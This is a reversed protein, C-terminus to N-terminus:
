DNFREIEIRASLRIRHRGLFRVAQKLQERHDAIQGVVRELIDELTVLGALSGYEDIVMAAHMEKSQLERLLDVVRKTEPVFDVPRLQSIWGQEPAAKAALLDRIHLMGVIQEESERWVPIRSYEKAKAQRVVEEMPRGAEISFIETRPTMVERVVVRNLDLINDMIKRESPALAGEGHGVQVAARLDEESVGGAPEASAPLVGRALFRLAERVPTIVKSFLNLPLAAHRVFTEPNQVAFTKPTIEGFILIVFTMIGTSLFIGYKGFSRYCLGAAYSSAFINVVMNGVLITILMEQPHALQSMLTRSGGERLRIRQLGTLSSFATESGSFFASLVILLGLLGLDFTWGLVSGM